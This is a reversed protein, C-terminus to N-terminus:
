NRTPNSQYAAAYLRKGEATKTFEVLCADPSKGAAKAFAELADELEREASKVVPDPESGKGIPRTITGISADVTALAALAQAREAEPLLYAAKVLLAADKVHPVAAVSKAIEATVAAAKAVELQDAMADNAKAMSVLRADDTAYFVEGSKAVHVPKALAAREADSKAVFVALGAGDLRKAYALQDAPLALVDDVLKRAKAIDAQAAALHLQAGLLPAAKRDPPGAGLSLYDSVSRFRRM